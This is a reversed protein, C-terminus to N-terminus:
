YEGTSKVFINDTPTTPSNLMGHMSTSMASTKLSTNLTPAFAEFGIDRSEKKLKDMLRKNRKNENIIDKNISYNM